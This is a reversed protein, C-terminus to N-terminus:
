ATTTVSDVAADAMSALASPSLGTGGAMAHLFFEVNGASGRLPSAVAGMIGTGADGLASAVQVLAERWVAPERIVGKGRSVETRGAEFQPKVLVVLQGGPAVLNVLPGAVTRLSIFSLDATVIDVPGEQGVLMNGASRINLGEHVTVRPDARLRADLQGRGVDVAIVAAAGRQLLCDVFGGTSSGADLARWGSVDVGFHSLASDLKEGARSAFRPPPGLVVLADAPSVLRSAKTAQSGGVLVQGRAVVAAAQERSGAL